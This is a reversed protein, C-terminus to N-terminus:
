SVFDSSCVLIIDRPTPPLTPSAGVQTQQESACAQHKEIMPPLTALMQYIEEFSDDQTLVDHEEGRLQNPKGM